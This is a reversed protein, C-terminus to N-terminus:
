KSAYKPCQKSAEEISKNYHKCKGNRHKDCGECKLLCTEATWGKACKETGQKSYGCMKCDLRAQELMVKKDKPFNKDELLLKKIEADTIAHAILAMLVAETVSSHPLMKEIVDKDGSNALSVLVEEPITEKDLLKLKEEPEGAKAIDKMGEETELYKECAVKKVNEDKDKMLDMIWRKPRNKNELVAIRVDPDKDGALANLIDEPCQENSACAKRVASNSSKSDSEFIRKDDKTTSAPTLKYQGFKERSKKIKDALVEKLATLHRRQDILIDLIYKGPEDLKGQKWAEEVSNNV